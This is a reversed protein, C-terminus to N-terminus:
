SIYAFDFELGVFSCAVGLTGMAPNQCYTQRLPDYVHVPYVCRGYLPRSSQLPDPLKDTSKAPFRATAYGLRAIM